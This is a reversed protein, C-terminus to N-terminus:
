NDKCIKLQKNQKKRGAEIYKKREATNKGERPANYAAYELTFNPNSSNDEIIGLKEELLNKAEQSKPWLIENRYVDEVRMERQTEFLKDIEKIREIPNKQKEQKNESTEM